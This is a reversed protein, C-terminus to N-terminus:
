YGNDRQRPYNDTIVGGTYNPSGEDSCTDAVYWTYTEVNDSLFDQLEKKYISAMDRSDAKSMALTRGDVSGYDNGHRVFTGNREPETWMRTGSLEITRWALYPQIYDDRLTLLDPEGALTPDAEIAAILIDYGDKGLVNKVTLQAAPFFPELKKDQVDKSIGTVTKATVASIIYTM